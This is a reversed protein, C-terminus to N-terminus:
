AKQVIVITGRLPYRSFPKGTLEMQEHWLRTAEANPTLHKVNGLEDAWAQCRLGEYRTFEPICECPSAGILKCIEEYSPLKAYTGEEKEGDEFLVTVKYMNVEKKQKVGLITASTSTSKRRLTLGTSQVACVSM